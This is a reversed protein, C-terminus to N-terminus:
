VWETIEGAMIDCTLQNRQRQMKHHSGHWSSPLSAGPVSVHCWGATQCCLARVCSFEAFHKQNVPRITNTAVVAPTPPRWSFNNFRVVWRTTICARWCKNHPYSFILLNQPSKHWARNTSTKRKTQYLKLKFNPHTFDLKVPWFTVTMVTEM